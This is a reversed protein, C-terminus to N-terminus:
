PVIRAFLSRLLSSPDKDPEMPLLFLSAEDILSLNDRLEDPSLREGPALMVVYFTRAGPESCLAVGIPALGAASAGVQADLLFITGLARYSAFAWLPQNASDAPLHVLDIGFDGDVDVRAMVELDGPGVQGREFRPSLEAGPVKMLLGAFQKAVSSSAAAVLLKVSVQAPGQADESPAFGRLRRCQSENFLASAAAQVPVIHARGFEIIGRSALTHLTRLVQYDPQSCQDVVDGVRDLEELLALVEQTLPHVVNPLESRDVRLKVPSELPPLKPALRNWEDIQRLGEALLTRTPTRIEAVGEIVTQEFHFEGSAWDLMRFLAKEAHVLGTAASLIEGEVVVISGSPASGDELEPTLTLRGTASRVHLMQLIEAPQLEVLRGEFDHDTNARAELREIRAQRELLVEVAQQIEAVEANANISADGVTGFAETRGSEGGVFLFRVGRTRPNARLIEALKNADVLPLGVQAVIVTPQESLAAELGAAGHSSVQCPHGAVELADAVRQGRGTNGDAILITQTSM